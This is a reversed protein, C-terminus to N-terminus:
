KDFWRKEVDEPKGDKAKPTLAVATQADADSAPETTLTSDSAAAANSVAQTLPMPQAVAGTLPMPAPAAAGAQPQFGHQGLWGLIAERALSGVPRGSQQSAANLADSIEPSIRLALLRAQALAKTLSELAQSPRAIQFDGSDIMGKIKRALDERNLWADDMWVCESDLDIEFAEM